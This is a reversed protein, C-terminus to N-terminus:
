SHTGVAPPPLNAGAQDLGGQMVWREIQQLFLIVEDRSPVYTANGIRIELIDTATSGTRAAVTTGSGVNGITDIDRMSRVDSTVSAYYVTTM